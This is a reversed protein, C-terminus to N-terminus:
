NSEKKAAPPAATSPAATASPKKKPLAPATNKAKKGTAPPAAPTVPAANTMAPAAPAAPAPATGPIECGQAAPQKQLDALEHTMAEDISIQILGKDQDVWVASPNGHDDVPHLLKDEADRVKALTAYRAVARDHDYDPYDNTMRASYAAVLVFLAFAAVVGALWGWKLRHYSLEAPM